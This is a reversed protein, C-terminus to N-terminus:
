PPVGRLQPPRACPDTRQLLGNGRQFPHEDAVAPVYLMRNDVPLAPAPMRCPKSRHPASSRRWADVGRPGIRYCRRWCTDAAAEERRTFRSRPAARSRGPSNRPQGRLPLARELVAGRAVAASTRPPFALSGCPWARLGAQAGSEHADRVPGAVAVRSTNRMTLSRPAGHRGADQSRQAGAGHAPM